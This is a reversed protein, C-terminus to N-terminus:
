NSSKCGHTDVQVHQDGSLHVTVTISQTHHGIREYPQLKSM